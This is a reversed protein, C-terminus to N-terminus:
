VLFDTKLSTVTEHFVIIVLFSCIYKTDNNEGYHIQDKSQNLTWKWSTLDSFPIPTRPVEFPENQLIVNLDLKFPFAEGSDM